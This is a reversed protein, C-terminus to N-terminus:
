DSEGVLRAMRERVDEVIPRLEPDPDSWLEVFRNYYALANEVDGRQEYLEGVRRLSVAQYRGIVDPRFPRFDTFKKWYHLASDPEGIADFVAALGAWGCDLCISAEAGRRYDALGRQANGRAVAVAGRSRDAAGQYDRGLDLQGSLEMAQLWREAQQIDGTTVHYDILEEYPRSAVPLGEIPTARLAESVLRDSVARDGTNSYRVVAWEISERLLAASANREAGAALSARALRDAERAQGRAAATYALKENMEARWEPSASESSLLERWYRRADDYREEVLAIDGNTQTVRPNGPFRREMAGLVAEAGERNGLVAEAIAVNRYGIPWTSDVNVAAAWYERARHFDGLYLYQVGSNNLARHDNPYQELITRYAAIAAQGDGTVSSHYNAIAYGRELDTLRHRLEYAKTSVEIVRDARVANNSLITGIKRYAMAFATDITVAEELLAVARDDDGAIEALAAQTYLRLAQMSATTVRDLPITRRISRLSEGIDERLDTALKGVATILADASSATVQGSTLVEGDSAVLRASVVFGSGLPAITGSLIAKYGDREAIELATAEDVVSAPDREMRELAESVRAPDLLRVADSQSISVRLLETVTPGLTSDTTRNAFESLILDDDMGLAGSSILTAAPGIGALRMAMFSGAVMGLSTFALAGGALAKKWTLHRELGVPTAVHLGTTRAEVKKRETRGTALMIPLGIAALVVGGTFVWDPLGLAIMLAYVLLLAVVSAGIYVAALKIPTDVLARVGSWVGRGTVVESVPQTATPTMGGSDPTVAGSAPMVAASFHAKLEDATQWRDAARKALCRMVVEALRPPVTNRHATVADPMETVQAALVQQPTQKVFPPRGTLMEYALAGVAYIDARHDVHPDAAAQEPSMYSPTGLAVGLSTLGSQIGGSSASVAKAVGFDTVLAHGRSLMVNDPKIDRHVVESEHAYALADMVETLIQVTEAIPLEGERALKARLSEGDIYPMVYWILDETSGASLLPVIHPHQLSAALKIERQFREKNVGAAMDPPLVKIVVKRALEVEKALFVRSMGGGGLERDIRYVGAGLTAQLRSLLDNM